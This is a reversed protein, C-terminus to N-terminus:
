RSHKAKSKCYNDFSVLFSPMNQRLYFNLKFSYFACVILIFIDIQNQVIRGLIFTFFVNCPCQKTGVNQLKSIARIIVVNFKTSKFLYAM